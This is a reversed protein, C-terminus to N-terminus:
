LHGVRRSKGRARYRRRRFIGDVDTMSTTFDTQLTGWKTVPLEPMGFMAPLDEPDFGLAKIVLDARYEPAANPVPEPWQRGTADPLGLRMKQVRVGTM